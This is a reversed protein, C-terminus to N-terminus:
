QPPRPQPSEPHASILKQPTFSRGAFLSFVLLRRRSRSTIIVFVKWFKSVASYGQTAATSAKPLTEIIQCTEEEATTSAFPVDWFLDRERARGETSSAGVPRTMDLEPYTADTNRLACSCPVETSILSSPLSSHLPSSGSNHGAYNLHFEKVLVDCLDKRLLPACGQLHTPSVLHDLVGARILGMGIDRQGSPSAVKVSEASRVVFVRLM